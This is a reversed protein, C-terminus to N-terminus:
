TEELVYRHNCCDHGQMLTKDRILKIKPNFGQAWAYDAFCVYAYGVHGMRAHRFASAWLCEKVKIEFVKDTDEVIDMTLTKKYGEGKFQNVYTSFSNDPTQKKQKEGIKLGDSKAMKKLFTELKEKGWEKELARALKMFEGYRMFISQRFSLKTGSDEDFKHQKKDQALVNAGCFCACVPLAGGIFRRRNTKLEM